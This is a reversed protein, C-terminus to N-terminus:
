EDAVQKIRVPSLSRDGLVDADRLSGDALNEAVLSSRLAAKSKLRAMFQNLKM